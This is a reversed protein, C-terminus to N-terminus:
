RSPERTRSVLPVLDPPTDVAVGAAKLAALVDIISRTIAAGTARVEARGAARCRAVVTPLDARAGDIEIRDARVWVRCPALQAPTPTADTGSGRAGADGGDGGHRRRWLLWAVLAAGGVLVVRQGTHRDRSRM